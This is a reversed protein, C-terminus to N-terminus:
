VSEESMKCGNRSCGNNFVVVLFLYLNVQEIDTLPSNWLICTFLFCLFLSIKYSFYLISKDFPVQLVQLILLAEEDLVAVLELNPQVTSCQRM